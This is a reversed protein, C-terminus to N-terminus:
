RFRVASGPTAVVRTTSRVAVASGPTRAKAATSTPTSVGVYRFHQPVCHPSGYMPQPRPSGQLRIARGPLALPTAAKTTAPPPAVPAPPTAAPKPKPKPPAGTPPKCPRPASAQQQCRQAAERQREKITSADIPPQLGNAEFSLLDSRLADARRWAEDAAAANLRARTDADARASCERLHHRVLLRQLVEAEERETYKSVGAVV